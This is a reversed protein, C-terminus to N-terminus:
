KRSTPQDLDLTMFISNPSEGYDAFPECIEFGASAYLAHAPAFAEM